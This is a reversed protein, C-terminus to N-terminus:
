ERNKRRQTPDQRGGARIRIAFPKCSHRGTRMRCARKAMTALPHSAAHGEKTCATSLLFAGNRAICAVQAHVIYRSAQFSLLPAM